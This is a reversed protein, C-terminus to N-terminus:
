EFWRRLTPLIILAGLAGLLVERNVNYGHLLDAPLNVASSIGVVLVILLMSRHALLGAVTIAILTILLYHTNFGFAMLLQKGITVGATLFCILFIALPKM